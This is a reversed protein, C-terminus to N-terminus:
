RAASKTLSCACLILAPEALSSSLLVSMPARATNGAHNAVCWLFRWLSHTSDVSTRVNFSPRQINLLRQCATHLASNEMLIIGDSIEALHALTLLSNYNQVIVEGSQYPRCHLLPGIHHVHIKSSNRITVHMQSLSCEKNTHQSALRCTAYEYLSVSMAVVLWCTSIGCHEWIDSLM